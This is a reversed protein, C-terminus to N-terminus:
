FRFRLGGSYYRGAVDYVNLLTPYLLGPASPTIFLPPQQDFVNNVTLFAEFDGGVRRFKHTLTVDTYAIDPLQPDAYIAPVVATGPGTNLKGIYRVRMAVSWPDNQYTINLSAKWRPHFSDTTGINSIIPSSLSAQSKLYSTYNAFLRFNLSGSLGIDDLSQTYTADIDFGSTSLVAANIRTAFISTAVNSPSRDSFPGPRTIFACTPSAGNSDECDQNVQTVSFQALADKLTIKYYDVSITFQRAPQVIAGITLTKGIEPKLNPNGGGLQALGTPSRCQCHIDTFPIVSSTPGAFLDYLTPARIDRSKAVRFRIQEVPEWSAGLKWSEVGGSTSYHTYRGAGSVSLSRAFPADKALPVELEGNFEWIDNSGRASGTNAVIWPPATSLIGRIGVQSYPTAPDANTTQKLLGTRYEAGVAFGIPGAWTSFLEGTLNAVLDNTVNLIEYTSDKRGRFSRIWDTLQQSPARVGFPNWPVCGPYLGPNTLTVRCVINGSAPDRVSDVSAYLAQNSIGNWESARLKSQGFVYTADLRWAGGLDVRVGTRALFAKNSQEQYPRGFVEPLTGQVGLCLAPLFGRGCTAAATPWGNVPVNGPAATIAARVSAPIYPNEAFIPVTGFNDGAAFKFVFRQAQLEVFTEIKDTVDFSARGFVQDTTSPTQLTRDAGLVSGTGGIQANLLGFQGNDRVYPTAADDATFAIGQAGPPGVQVNSGPTHTASVVNPLIYYPNTASGLAGAVSGDPLRTGAPYRAVADYNFQRYPRDLFAIGGADDRSASLLVHGRDGLFGAGAAIGVRYSGMDNRDSVGGTIEGRVGTFKKDLIFNVVGAVADSGYVAAVGGTVVDVRQVLLEPIIDVSVQGEATTPPVRVGDQLILSRNAGLNRLNLFNGRPPGGPGNAVTRPTTSNDFQPMEILAQAVGAPQAATLQAATVVTVPTPRAYGTSQIRSGTVVVEDVAAGETAQALAPSILCASGLLALVSVQSFHSTMSKPM